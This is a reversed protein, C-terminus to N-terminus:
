TRPAVDSPVPVLSSENRGEVVVLTDGRHREKDRYMELDARLMLSREDEADIPYVGLGLSVPAHVTTEGITYPASLGSQIRRGAVEVNLPVGVRGSPTGSLDIDSILVCFEDGGFRCVIDAERSSGVLRASLQVLVEDGAAHGMRDNISKFGEIDMTLVAVGLNHRRARAFALDLHEELLRRNPLGTLPDHHALYVLQDRSRKRDTIDHLLWRLVRDSGGERWGRKASVYVDVPPGTTPQVRTDWGKVEEGQGLRTMSRDFGGRCEDTVYRGLNTGVLTDQRMGLMDGTALNALCITGDVETEVYSGPALDFLELYRRGEAEIGDSAAAIKQDIRRLDALVQFARMSEEVEGNPSDGNSQPAPRSGAPTRKM